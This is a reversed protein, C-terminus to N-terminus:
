QMLKKIKKVKHVTWGIRLGGLLLSLGSVKIGIKGLKGHACWQAVMPLQRFTTDVGV